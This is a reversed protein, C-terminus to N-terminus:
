AKLRAALTAEMRDVATSLAHSFGERTHYKMAYARAKQSREELEQTPLTQVRISTSRITEVSCDPLTFGFDHTDIGCRESVIPILGAHMGIIVAGSQGESASPSIVFRNRARIEDFLTGGLDVVGHSMIHPRALENAYITELLPDTHKGCLELRPAGDTGFAELLLDLGKLLPGAGGIWVFGHAADNTREIPTYTFTTSIPINIVTADTRPTYTSLTRENGYYLMYDAYRESESPTLQRQPPFVVGRRNKLDAIREREADNNWKWHSTLMFAVKVCHPPLHPLFRELNGHMDIAIDYPRQPVFTSNGSDIVDVAYGREVFEEAIRWSEWYNTHTTREHAGVEVFPLTTYAILVRRSTNIPGLSVVGGHLARRIKRFTTKITM